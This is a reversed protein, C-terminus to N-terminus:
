CVICEFDPSPARWPEGRMGGQIAKMSERDAYMVGADSVGEGGGRGGGGGGWWSSTTGKKRNKKSLLEKCGRFIHKCDYLVKIHRGM